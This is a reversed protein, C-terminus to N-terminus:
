ANESKKRAFFAMPNATDDAGTAASTTSERGKPAFFSLPNPREDTITIDDIEPVFGGDDGSEDDQGAREGGPVLQEALVSLIAVQRDFAAWIRDMSPGNMGGGGAAAMREADSLGMLRGTEAMHAAAYLGALLRVLVIDIRRAERAPLDPGFLAIRLSEARDLVRRSVDQVLRAEQRGFAYQSVAQLIPAFANLMQVQIQAEDGPANGPEATELRLTTDAAPTFSDAFTMVAQLAGGMRRLELDGPVRGTTMYQAAVLPGAFAALALHVGDAQAEDRVNLSEAMSLGLQVSQKLLEAVRQADGDAKGAATPVTMAAVTLPSGIKELVQLLFRTRQDM